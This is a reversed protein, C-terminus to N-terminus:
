KCLIQFTNMELLGCLYKENLGDYPPYDNDTVLYHITETFFMGQIGVTGLTRFGELTSTDKWRSIERDAVDAPDSWLQSCLFQKHPQVDTKSVKQRM